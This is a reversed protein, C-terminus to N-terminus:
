PRMLDSERGGEVVARHNADLSAINIRACEVRSGLDARVGLSRARPHMHVSGESQPGGCSGAASVQHRAEGIGIGQAVSQWLHSDVDGVIRTQGEDALRLM